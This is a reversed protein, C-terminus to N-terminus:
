VVVRLAAPAATFRVQRRDGVYDGDVQLAIPESARVVIEGARDVRVISRSAPGGGRMLLQRVIRLVTLTRLSRLALLGLDRDAALGPNTHVGRRGAYTWPDVNSVLALHVAGLEHGDVTVALRPQRRDAAFFARVAQRIHLGNSITRGQERLREVARVVQADLGLGANFTFFRDDALGASVERTRGRALGDLLQETATTPDRDIGVARAFVNTSGGPVVALLPIRAASGEDADALLGNVVENVTGDGGHVVVLRTGDERAAAALDTAHGRCDTHEVTLTLSGALARTILDRRRETTATAHPNVILLARM